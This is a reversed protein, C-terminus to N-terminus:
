GGILENVTDKDNYIHKIGLIEQYKEIGKGAILIVDEKEAM